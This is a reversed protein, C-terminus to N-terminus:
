AKETELVNHPSLSFPSIFTLYFFQCKLKGLVLSHPGWKLLNYLNWYDLENHWLKLFLFLNKIILNETFHNKKLPM